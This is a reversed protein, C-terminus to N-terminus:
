LVRIASELLVLAKVMSNKLHRQIVKETIVGQSRGAGRNVVLCIAAYELGLERALAAEPMGTMGVLDCGDREMRDIEAKTELRPGQTCGYVGHDVINVQCEKAVDTLALRMARSYPETFDVHRLETESGISYTHERGWTYDIIQDPICIVEPQMASTIGGVANIALIKKVGARKLAYMNARYNILHPPIQHAEGHRPMFILDVGGLTGEILSASPEGYHSNRWQTDSINLGTLRTFGTGGIIALKAKAM